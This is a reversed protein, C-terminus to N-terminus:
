QQRRYHFLYQQMIGADAGFLATAKAHMDKKSTVGYQERMIQEVWTDIPFANRHDYAFLLICDAVKPGVGPIDLLHARAEEYPLHHIMALWEHSLGNASLLYKERYGSRIGSLKAGARIRGPQPFVYTTYSGVRVPTGFATAIATMLQRIRKINNNQSCIFGITCEWPDQRCIRLGACYALAETAYADTSVPPAEDLRFFQQLWEVTVNPTAAHVTLMDGDQSILFAKDAHAILYGESVLEYRFLQGSEITHILSFSPTHLQM